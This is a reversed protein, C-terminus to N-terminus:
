PLKALRKSVESLEIECKACVPGLDEDYGDPHKCKCLACKQDDKHFGYLERGIQIFSVLAMGAAGGFLFLFIDRM